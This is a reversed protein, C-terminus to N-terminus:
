SSKPLAERARAAARSGRLPPFTRNRYRVRRPESARAHRRSPLLHLLVEELLSQVWRAASGCGSQQRSGWQKLRLLVVRRAASFSLARRNEELREGAAWMVGRVLSYALLGTYFEKRAMAASRVHLVAMKLQTKVYRFNLEAQWRQGYWQVLLALPYEAAPLTTFLWLDIGHGDKKLRVYILRGTVKKGHVGPPIKDSATRHWSVFREQGSALPQGACLRNARPRTMRVLVDQRLRQAQAVISWVGFNRDGIWVTFARAHEMMSWSMAQESLQQAGCVASLVGGTRACFGVVIRMLCWDSAGRQNKGPPFAKQLDPTRLMALTSGDFLRRDRRNAPPAQQPSSELGTMKRLAEGLHALAAQVLALPLRQRAQNYGSTQSSCAAQSLKKGQRPSLRDAGGARLDQVVAALTPDDNLRQFILYWLTVGLSFIRQYSGRQPHGPANKKGGKAGGAHAQGAATTGHHPPLQWGKIWRPSFVTAFLKLVAACSPGTRAAEATRAASM